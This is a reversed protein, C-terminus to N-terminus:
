RARDPRRTIGDGGAGAMCAGRSNPSLKYLLEARATNSDVTRPSDKEDATVLEDLMETDFAGVHLLLVHRVQGRVHV